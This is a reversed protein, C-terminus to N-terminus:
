GVLARIRSEIMSCPIFIPKDTCQITLSGAAADYNWLFQMGQYETSGTTGALNLGQAAAKALLTQYNETTIGTLTISPCAM